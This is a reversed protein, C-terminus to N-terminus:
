NKTTKIISDVTADDHSMAKSKLHNTMATRVVPRAFCSYLVRHITEFCDLQFFLSEMARAANSITQESVLKGKSVSLLKEPVKSM